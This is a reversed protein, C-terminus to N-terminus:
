DCCGGRGNNVFSLALKVEDALEYSGYQFGEFRNNVYRMLSRLKGITSAADILCDLLKM